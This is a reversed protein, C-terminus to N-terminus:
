CLKKSWIFDTAQREQDGRQEDSQYLYECLGHVPLVNEEPYTEPKGLEVIDLKTAHKPKLGIREENIKNTKKLINDLNKIWIGSVKEPNQCEPAHM